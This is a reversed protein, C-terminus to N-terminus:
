NPVQSQSLDAIISDLFAFSSINQYGTGGNIPVNCHSYCCFGGFWGVRLEYRYSVLNLPSSCPPSATFLFIETSLTLTVFVTVPVHSFAEPGTLLHTTALFSTHEVPLRWLDRRHWCTGPELTPRLSCLVLYWGTDHTHTLLHSVVYM